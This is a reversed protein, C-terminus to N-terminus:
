YATYRRLKRYKHTTIKGSKTNKEIIEGDEFEEFQHPTIDLKGQRLRQKLDNKLNKLDKFDYILITNKSNRILNEVRKEYGGNNIVILGIREPYQNSLIGQVSRVVEGNLKGNWNKSQIILKIMQDKIKIHAFHDIGNDGIIQKGYSSQTKTVTFGQKELQNKIAIEMAEGKSYQDMKSLKQAIEEYENDSHIPTHVISELEESIVTMTDSSDAGENEQEIIQSGEDSTLKDNNNFIEQQNNPYYKGGDPNILSDVDEYDSDSTNNSMKIIIKSIKIKKNSPLTIVIDKYELKRKM